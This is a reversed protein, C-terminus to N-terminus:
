SSIRSSGRTHHWMGFSGSKGTREQFSGSVRVGRQLCGLPPLCLFFPCHCGRADEPFVRLSWVCSSLPGSVWQVVRSALLTGNSLCSSAQSEQGLGAPVRRDSDSISLFSLNRGGISILGEKMEDFRTSDRSAGRVLWSSTVLM